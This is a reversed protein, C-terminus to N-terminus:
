RRVAAVLEYLLALAARPSLADVDLEALRAIVPHPPAAAPPPTFLDPQPSASSSARARGELEHLHLRAANLVTRPLGALRAVQLGYSRDAPGPKVRHLFVLEDAHEVADLHVNAVGPVANAMDTLEFYHTAFLTFAGSRALAEACARAIALGDYTSTGRGIEDMLVLSGPGAQHLISATEIMEVMFTSRGGALDDGAGIRTHIRQIPGIEAKAAPVFSGLHALLVILATQRMYTSKGGMNPGTILLMRCREDLDLDNPEFPQGRASEVVPHRGADIRLVPATTLLPRHWASTEARAAFNALVDAEALAEACRKLGALHDLLRDLLAEYLARERMSARERASLVQDEFAKLEASIYREAGRVTQRRTWDRPVREAHSHTVELYYGQVRNYAVRLNPIGTRVRERQELEALFRDADASLARLRDLEADYGVAFVGGDRLSPPPVEVLARRLEAALVGHEGLEARLIRWREADLQGLLTSLGPLAELAQRLGALDRPRASKLAVRALIREVDGIARLTQRLEGHRDRDILEGVADLRRNLVDHDRTPRALWRRLLRGGMATCCDDLLAILSHEPREAGHEFLELHRRAAADLIVAEDNREVQIATVHPLAARQTDRVYALLAGAAGLAPGLDACGYADLAAVGLTERLTQEARPRDFHWPPRARLAARPANPPPQDEAYLLEAPDLRMLEGDLSAPPPESLCFRGASLDLWALGVRDGQRHVALLLPDRRAELLADDTVTGPTLIRTVRREVLGKSSAPDGIQECIAASEGLKILRALYTDVAHVPVGAMPIPAGASVGRQTLTIDLLRAAKRADEYFLEYFDGMRFLLLTDPFEAKIALYQRMLPTHAELPTSM